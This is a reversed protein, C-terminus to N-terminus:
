HEDAVDTGSRRWARHHGYHAAGGRGLEPDDRRRGACRHTNSGPLNLRWIGFDYQQLTKGIFICCEQM